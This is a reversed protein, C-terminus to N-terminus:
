SRIAPRSGLSRKPPQTKRIGIAREKKEKMELPLLRRRHFGEEMGGQNSSTRMNRGGEPPFARVPASCPQCRCHCHRGGRRTTPLMACPSNGISHFHCDSGAAACNRDRPWARTPLVMAIRPPPGRSLGTQSDLQSPEATLPGRFRREGRVKGRGADQVVPCPM